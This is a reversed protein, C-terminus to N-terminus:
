WDNQGPRPIGSTVRKPALFDPVVQWKVSGDEYAVLVRRRSGDHGTDHHRCVLLVGHRIAEGPDPRQAGRPRAASGSVSAPPPSSETRLYQYSHPRSEATGETADSDRVAASLTDCPCRFVDESGVYPELLHEWTVHEAGGAIENWVVSSGPPYGGHESRYMAFANALQRIQSTCTARKAAGRATWAAVFVLVALLLFLVLALAGAIFTIPAPEHHSRRAGGTHDQGGLTWMGKSNSVLRDKGAKPRPCSGQRYRSVQM